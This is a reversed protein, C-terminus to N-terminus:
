SEFTLQDQLWDWSERLISDPHSLFHNCFKRRFDSDKLPERLLSRINERALQLALMDLTRCLSDQKQDAALGFAVTYCFLVIMEALFFLEEDTQRVSHTYSVM